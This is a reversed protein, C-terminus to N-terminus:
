AVADAVEPVEPEINVGEKIMTYTVRPINRKHEIIGGHGDSQQTTETKIRTDLMLRVPRPLDIEENPKVLFSFGNLGIFLGEKPIDPSDNIRIRDRIHGVPSSFWLEPNLEQPTGNKSRPM